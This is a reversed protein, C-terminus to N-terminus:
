CAADRQGFSESDRREAVTASRRLRGDGEATLRRVGDRLFDRNSALLDPLAEIEEITCWRVESVEAPNPTLPDGNLEALWWHLRLRGDPRRYEWVKRLPRVEGGVEERFERVVAETASEGPEIAGGVFCWAGGALLDPARRIMLFRGNRRVVVVVGEVEIPQASAAEAAAVPNVEDPM